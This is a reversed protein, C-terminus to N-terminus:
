TDARGSKDPTSQEVPDGTGVEGPSSSSARDVFSPGGWRTTM